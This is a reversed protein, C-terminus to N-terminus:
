PRLTICTHARRTSYMYPSPCNLESGAHCYCFFDIFWGIGFCISGYQKKYIYLSYTRVAPCYCKLYKSLASRWAYSQFVDSMKPLFDDWDPINQWFTEVPLDGYKRKAHSKVSCDYQRTNKCKDTNKNGRAKQHKRTGQSMHNGTRSFIPVSHRGKISTQTHIRSTIRFYGSCIQIIIVPSLEMNRVNKQTGRRNQEDHVASPM